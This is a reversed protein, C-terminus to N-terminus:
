CTCWEVRRLLIKGTSGSTHLVFVPDNKAVAFTKQFPVNDIEGVTLLQQLSPLVMTHLKLEGLIAPVCPAQPETIVLRACQLGTLLAVHAQVSNRPSPLFVKLCDRDTYRFPNRCLSSVKYGAKMGALMIISYRLDMPGIYALTEFTNSQGCAKILLSAIFNMANCLQVNTVDRFGNSYAPGVPIRAFVDGPDDRARNSVLEPLLLTTDRTPHM